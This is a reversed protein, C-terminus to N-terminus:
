NSSFETLTCFASDNRGSLSMVDAIKESPWTSVSTAVMVNCCKRSGYVFYCCMLHLWKGTWCRYIETDTRLSKWAVESLFFLVSTFGGKEEEEKEDTVKITNRRQQKKPNDAMNRGTALPHVARGGGGVDQSSFVDNGTHFTSFTSTLLFNLVVFLASCVCYGGCMFCLFGM